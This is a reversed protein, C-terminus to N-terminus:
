SIGIRALMYGVVGAVVATILTKVVLEWRKAPAKELTDLKGDLNQVQNAVRDIADGQHKQGEAMVGVSTALSHIADSQEELKDLRHTNSKSRSDAEALKLVMEENTM